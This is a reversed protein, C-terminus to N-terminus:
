LIGGALKKDLNHEARRLQARAFIFVAAAGLPLALAMGLPPRLGLAFLGAPIVYFVIMGCLLYLSGALSYFLVGISILRGPHLWNFEARASGIRLYLAAL